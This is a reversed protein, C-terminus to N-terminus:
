RTLVQLQSNSLRVPYYSVQQLHGNLMYVSGGGDGRRGLQMTTPNPNTKTGTQTTISSAGSCGIVSDNTYFNYARVGTVFTNRANNGGTVVTNGGYCDTVLGGGVDIVMFGSGAGAISVAESYPSHNAYFKFKASVTGESPNYFSSFNTGTISANDASRTVTSGSTPIVSTAFAGQELQPMGLRITFDIATNGAVGINLTHSVLGVTAGGSLTRTAAPRQSILDASTPATQPYFAGSVFAGGSTNEIVGIQWNTIGTTTGSALKWYLSATWTQATVASANDIGFACPLPSAVTTGNFRYDIYNIGNEIGTGIISITLGNSQATVYTWSTPNTGPTGAAAGVMTNNRVSNTRSEEILLGLCDGTTANFDFRPTDTAASKILGDGGTYTASSSRTFTIRPDLKQSRAFNLNLSPRTSPFNQSISM